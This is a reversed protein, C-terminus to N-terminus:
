SVLWIMRRSFLLQWTKISYEKQMQLKGVNTSSTPYATIQDDLPHLYCLMYLLLLPWKRLGNRSSSVTSFTNVWWDIEIMVRHFSINEDQNLAKNGFTIMALWEVNSARVWLLENGLDRALFKCLLRLNNRYTVQNWQPCKPSPFSPAHLTEKFLM